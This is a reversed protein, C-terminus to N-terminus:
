CFAVVHCSYRRKPVEKRKKKGEEIRVEKFDDTCHM